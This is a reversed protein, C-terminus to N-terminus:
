LQWKKYKSTKMTYIKIKLIKRERPILVIQHKKKKEGVGARGPRIIVTATHESDMWRAWLPAPEGAVPHIVPQRDGQSCDVHHSQFPTRPPSDCLLFRNIYSVDCPVPSGSFEPKEM